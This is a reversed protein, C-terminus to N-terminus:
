NYGGCAQYYPHGHYYCYPSNICYIPNFHPLRRRQCHRSRPKCYDDIGKLDNYHFNHKGCRNNEIHKICKCDSDIRRSSHDCCTTRQCCSSKHHCYLKDM